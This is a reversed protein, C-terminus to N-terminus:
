ARCDAVLPPDIGLPARLGISLCTPAAHAHPPEHEIHALAIEPVGEPQRELLDLFVLFPGIADAGAAQLVDGLDKLHRDRKEEFTRRGQEAPWRSLLCGISVLVAAPLHKRSM